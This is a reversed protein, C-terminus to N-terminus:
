RVHTNPWRQYLQYDLRASAHTEGCHFQYPPGFLGALLLLVDAISNRHSLIENDLSDFAIEDFNAKFL